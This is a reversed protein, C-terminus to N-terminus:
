KKETRFSQLQKTRFGKDSSINGTHGNEFLGWFLRWCIEKTHDTYIPEKTYLYM